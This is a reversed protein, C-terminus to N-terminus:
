GAPHKIWIGGNGYVNHIYNNIRSRYAVLKFGLVDDPKFIGKKFTNFGIQYTNAQEPKLATNVGSDGIQSFYMEQINPMRHTRSYSIFPMFTTTSM